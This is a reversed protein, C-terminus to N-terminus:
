MSSEMKLLFTEFQKSIFCVGNDMVLVEPVGFQAFLAHSHKIVIYSTCSNTPFAEIWKSHSDILVLIMKGQFLGAFDIHVRAWPRSLWKWPQLPAVSPASQQEQCPACARVLAEIDKEINPWWVYMRSLSKMRTMGPHGEHLELLIARQGQPPVVVRSGWMVCGQYVSLENKKSSFSALSHNCRDPWGREIFQLVKSLVPDRRTWIQIHRATIPSDELYETLLVLEPPTPSEAQKESLPLRSLADANQHAQTRRFIISYEYASLTTVLM